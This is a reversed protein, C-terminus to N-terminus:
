WLDDFGKLGEGEDWKRMEREVVDIEEERGGKGGKGKNKWSGADAGEDKGVDWAKKEGMKPYKM